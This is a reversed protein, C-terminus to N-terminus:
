PSAKLYLLVRNLDKCARNYATKDSRSRTLQWVRRLRRRESVMSALDTSWLYNDRLDRTHVTPTLFEV